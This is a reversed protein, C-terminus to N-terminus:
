ARNSGGSPSPSSIMPGSQNQNERATPPRWTTVLGTAQAAWWAPVTRLSVPRFGLHPSDVAIRGDHRRLHQLLRRAEALRAPSGTKWTGDASHAARREIDQRVGDRWKFHHVAVPPRNAPRHGEARHNGSAVAVGSHALVIKRPDGRLLRHTLFAGLPYATDLGTQPDWGTLSGDATVRDLMLGGVVRHGAHEARAIMEDLPVPYQQFEDADALLHWGPGAQQRLADRLTGNTHEHWPGSGVATPIIGLERSAALLEHRREEPVHEPFHFAILFREIGLLRYHCVWAALLPVEVPGIVSVLPPPTILM